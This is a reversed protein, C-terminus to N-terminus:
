DSRYEIRKGNKVTRGPIYVIINCDKNLCFDFWPKECMNWFHMGDPAIPSKCGISWRGYHWGTPYKM